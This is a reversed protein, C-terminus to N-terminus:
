TPPRARTAVAVWTHSNPGTCWASGASRTVDSRRRAGRDPTRRGAIAPPRVSSPQNRVASCRPLSAVRSRGQVSPLATRGSTCPEVYKATRASASACTPRPSRTSNLSQRPSGSSRSVSPPAVTVSASEAATSRPASTLPSIHRDCRSRNRNEFSSFRLRASRTLSTPPSTSSSWRTRATPLWWWFNTTMRWGSRGPPRRRGARHSRGPARDAPRRPGGRRGGPRATRGGTRAAAPTARRGRGSGRGPPGRRRPRTGPATPPGRRARAAATAPPAPRAAGPPGPARARERRRRRVRGHGAGARDLEQAGVRLAPGPVRERRVALAAGGAPVGLRQPPGPAEHVDLVLVQPRGVDRPDEGGRQAALGPEVEDGDDGAVRVLVVPQAQRGHPEAM